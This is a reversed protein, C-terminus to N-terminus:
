LVRRAFRDWRIEARKLRALWGQPCPFMDRERLFIPEPARNACTYDKWNISFYVYMPRGLLDKEDVFGDVRSDRSDDRNDGVVVYKGPPVTFTGVPLPGFNGFSPIRELVHYSRGQLTQVLEYNEDAHGYDLSLGKAPGVLRLQATEDNRTIQLASLKGSPTILETEQFRLRDGPRGILRKIYSRGGGTRYVVLEDHLVASPEIRYRVYFYDGRVLAPATSATPMSHSKITADRLAEQAAGAGLLVSIWLVYFWPRLAGAFISRSESPGARWIRFTDVLVFVRLGLAAVIMVYMSLFHAGGWTAEPLAWLVLLVAPALCISIPLFLWFRTRSSLYYYGLPLLPGNLFLALLLNRRPAM